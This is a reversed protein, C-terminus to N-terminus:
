VSVLSPDVCFSGVSKVVGEDGDGTIEFFWLGVQDAPGFTEWIGVTASTPVPSTQTGDPAEILAAVSDPNVLQEDSDEFRTTILYDEGLIM